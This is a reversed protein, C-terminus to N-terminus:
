IRDDQIEIEPEAMKSLSDMKSVLADHQPDDKNYYADNEYIEAMEQKATEPTKLLGGGGDKDGLLGHEDYQEGIKMFVRM